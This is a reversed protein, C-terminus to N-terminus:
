SKTSKIWSYLDKNSIPSKGKQSLLDDQNVWVLKGDRTLMKVKKETAKQNRNQAQVWGPTLVSITTQIIRFLFNRKNM